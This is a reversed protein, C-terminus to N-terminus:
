NGLRFRHSAPLLKGIRVEGLLDGEIRGLIEPLLGRRLLHQLRYLPVLLVEGVLDMNVPRNMHRDLNALGDLDARRALTADLSVRYYRVYPPLKFGHEGPQLCDPRCAHRAALRM